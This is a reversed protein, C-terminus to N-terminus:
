HQVGGLGRVATHAVHVVLVRLIEQHGLHILDAEEVGLLAAGLAELLEEVLLGVPRPECGVPAITSARMAIVLAISRRIRGRWTASTPTDGSIPEIPPM